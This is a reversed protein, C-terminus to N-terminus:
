LGASPDRWEVEAASLGRGSSGHGGAGEAVVARGGWAEVCMVQPQCGEFAEACARLHAM